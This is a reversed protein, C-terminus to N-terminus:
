AWGPRWQSSAYAAQCAAESEWHTARIGKHTHPDHLVWVGKFGPQARLAPLIREKWHVVGHDPKGPHLQVREITTYM